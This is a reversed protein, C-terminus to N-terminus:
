HVFESAFHLDLKKAAEALRKDKSWLRVDGTLRAAALLHADIYGIGRGFLANEEVLRLVEQDNATIVAPLRSVVFLVTERDKMMGMALEGVVLPHSCVKKENLLTRLRIDPSRLHDIWVSSDVLTM